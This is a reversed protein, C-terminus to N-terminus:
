ADVGKAILYDRVADARKQSLELNWDDNGRADTHVQIEVLGIKTQKHFVAAIADLTPRSERKITAKGTDFYIPDSVIENTTVSVGAVALSTWLVLLALVRM